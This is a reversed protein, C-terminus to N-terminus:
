SDNKRRTAWLTVMVAVAQLVYVLAQGISNFRAFSDGGAMLAGFLLSSVAVGPVNLGGLLAIPIGMFGWGQSFGDGVQGVLGLYDIGGAIGCLAGSVAMALLQYAEPNYHSTKVLRSNQGVVKILFGAKTKTLFIYVAIALGVALLVGMHLDTQPDPQPLMAQDPLRATLPLQHKPEQLPGRVAWAVLQVVVFNLMITTIVCPVGRKTQLWGAFSSLLAGSVASLPLAIWAVAGPATSVLGSAIGAGALGGVLYQGEGGINYIGARWAVAVGLGCLLLPTARVLTRAIGFKDGFAGAMMLGLGQRVDVGALGLTLVLAIILAVAIILAQKM